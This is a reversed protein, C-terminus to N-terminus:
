VIQIAGDLFNAFDDSHNDADNLPLPELGATAPMKKNSEDNQTAAASSSVAEITQCFAHDKFFPRPNAESMKQASSKGDFHRRNFVTLSTSQYDFRPPMFPMQSYLGVNAPLSLQRKLIDNRKNLMDLEM